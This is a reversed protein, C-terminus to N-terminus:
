AIPLTKKNLSLFWAGGAFLLTSTSASIICYFCLANLVFIQLFMFYLSALFGFVTFRSVANLIKESKRDISYLLLTSVIFYYVAGILAVPVGFLESYVSTTVTECGTVIKCPPVEGKFYEYSLFSADFFGLIAVLLMAFQITTLLKTKNLPM